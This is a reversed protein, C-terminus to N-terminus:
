IASTAMTSLFRMNWCSIIVSFAAAHRACRLPIGLDVAGALMDNRVRCKIRREARGGRAGSARCMSICDLKMISSCRDTYREKLIEAPCCREDRMECRFERM